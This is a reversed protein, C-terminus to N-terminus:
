KELLNQVFIGEKPLGYMGKQIKVYITGDNNALNKLNYLKVFNPPLDGLKMRMYEPQDMPRNLCFEKLDITCCYRANKASIISNLHLKVTIM